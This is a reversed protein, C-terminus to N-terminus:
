QPSHGCALNQNEKQRYSMRNRRRHEPKPLSGNLLSAPGWGEGTTLLELAFALMGQVSQKAIHSPKGPEKPAHKLLPVNAGRGSDFLAVELAGLPATLLQDAVEGDNGLYSIVARSAQLGAELRGIENEAADFEKKTRGLTRKLDRHQEETPKV